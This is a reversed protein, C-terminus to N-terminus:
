KDIVRAGGKGGVVILNSIEGGLHIPARGVRTGSSDRGVKLILKIARGGGVGEKEGIRKERKLLSTTFNSGMGEYGRKETNSSKVTSNLAVNKEAM